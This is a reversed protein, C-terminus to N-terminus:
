YSKFSVKSFYVKNCFINWSFAPRKFHRNM